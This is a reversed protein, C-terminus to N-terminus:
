LIIDAAVLAPTGTLEIAFEASTDADTSGQLVGGSYRLQGAATFAAGGIFTFAQNGALLVNADITSVDIRDGASAGNGVFDTIVDRNLGPLSESVSNFDFRDFGGGGTINDRGLGGILLDSGSGGNLTDNGAFGSLTNIGSNGLITNALGNGTGNINGSGTLTLNEFGAVLIYSISSQVLDAGGGGAESVTDGANDVVYKDNGTGGTMADAGVGGNLTDNGARGNLTDNGAGGNLTDDGALGNLIDNGDTGTLIDDGIGSDDNLITGIGQSDTIVAGNTPSLLTVFFRENSEVKTDGKITVSITQTDVGAAFHLTGFYYAFDGDATTATNIISAAKVDFAGTGGTRTVTFTLVKTGSDGETISVDNISVLPTIIPVITGTFTGYWAYTGPTNDSVFLAVGTLSMGDNSFTINVEGYDIDKPSTVITSRAYFHEMASKQAAWPDIITTLTRTAEDYTQTVLDLAALSSRDPVYFRELYTNSAWILDGAHPFFAFPTGVMLGIDFINVGNGTAAHPDIPVTSEVLSGTLNFSEIQTFQTFNPDYFATNGSYTAGQVSISYEYLAL